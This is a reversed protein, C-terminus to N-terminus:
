WPSMSDIGSSNSPLSISRVGRPQLKPVEKGSDDVDQEKTSLLSFPSLKGTTNQHKEIEKPKRFKTGLKTNVWTLPGAWGSSAPVDAELLGSEQLLDDIIGKSEPLEKENNKASIRHLEGHFEPNDMFFAEFFSRSGFGKDKFQGNRTIVWGLKKNEAPGFIVSFYSKKWIQNDPHKVVQEFDLERLLKEMIRTDQDTKEARNKFGFLENLASELNMQGGMSSIEDSTPVSGNMGGYEFPRSENADEKQKNLLAIDEAGAMEGQEEQSNRARNGTYDCIDCGEGGCSVCKEGTFQEPTDEVGENMEPDREEASRSDNYSKCDACIRNGDNDQTFNKSLCKPCEEEVGSDMIVDQGEGQGNAANVWKEFEDQEEVKGHSRYARMVHPLALQSEEDLSEGDFADEFVEDDAELEGANGSLAPSNKAYGGKSSLSSLSKKIALYRERVAALISSVYPKSASESKKQKHYFKNLSVMEEVLQCIDRGVNDYPTGGNEIHRAMARAAVLNKFPVLFRENKANVLYIRDIRRSRSGKVEPDVKSTHKIVIKIPEGDLKQHSTKATGDIPLFSGEFMPLIDETVLKLDKEIDRRTIQSKNINRVDFGMLHMKAFQRINRLFAYWETRTDSDSNGLDQGFYIKIANASESDDLLSLVVSGKDEGKKNIFNFSFVKIESPDDTFHGAEDVSDAIDFRDKLLNILDSSVNEVPLPCMLYEGTKLSTSNKRSDLIKKRCEASWKRGPKSAAIKNRAEKSHTKGNM